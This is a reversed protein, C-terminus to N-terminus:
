AMKDSMVKPSVFLQCSLLGEVMSEISSYWNMFLRVIDFNVQFKILKSLM